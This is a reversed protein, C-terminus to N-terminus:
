TEHIGNQEEKIRRLSRIGSIGNRVSIALIPWFLLVALGEPGNFDYCTCDDLMCLIFFGFLAILAWVGLIIGIVKLITM